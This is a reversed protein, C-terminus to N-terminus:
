QTDELFVQYMKSLRQMADAIQQDRKVNEYTKTLAALMERARAIHFSAQDVNTDALSQKAPSIHAQAINQLQLGIFAYPTGTTRSTLDSIARECATLNTTAPEFHQQVTNTQAQALLEDLRKLVPEIAIELKQRKDGDFSGANEDVTINRPKCAATQGVDLMRKNMENPQSQAVNKAQEDPKKSAAAGKSEKPEAPERRESERPSQADRPRENEQTQASAQAQAETSETKKEATASASTQKTDTVQVTYSIQDGHKLGLERTDIQVTQRLQKKGAEAQLDIPIRLSNTEGAATTTEVQLEAKAIGLDDTAEFAVDVKEGPLVALEDSPELIKVTPALDEYVTVRCSPKSKNDLKFKNMAAAAFAFSNTPRLTFQYWNDGASTLQTSQGNGFDLFMRDLEQDSRFSLQLESGELVRLAQPLAAREDVPLKSYAPPSVKLKVESIRQRDVATIPLWPTQGDGARVRYQFSESIDDIADTFTGAASPKPKMERVIQGRELLPARKPIRGKVTGTLTLPEGRPVWVNAPSATIQTLSINKAPMWFRQLLLGAETFNVAFLIVLAAVAGSLWRAAVIVPRASVLADPTIIRAAADAESAVQGIMAESGRVEPADTNQSLETVTSWREELRPMADDVERATGIVTRRRPRLVLVVIFAFALTLFLAAYRPVPHLWAVTWDLVMAAIMSALLVTLALIGARALALGLARRRIARLKKSM